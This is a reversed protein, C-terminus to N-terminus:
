FADGCFKDLLVTFFFYIMPLLILLNPIDTETGAIRLVLHVIWFLFLGVIANRQWYIKNNQAM